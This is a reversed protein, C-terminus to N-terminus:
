ELEIRGWDEPRGQVGPRPSWALRSQNINEGLAADAKDGDYIILNFGLRKQRPYDLGIERFPISARLRYGGTMDTRAYRSRPATEEALGQNADADRAARVQGSTDAPFIALKFAKVTHEAGAEPDLCIEVSDTRWHGRVDNPAINTVIVDDTVDIELFLNKRDHALRFRGGSDAPGTVKGEALRTAPIVVSPIEAWGEDAGESVRQRPVRLKPVPHLTVAARPEIQGIRGRAIIEFDKEAEAPVEVRVSVDRVGAVLKGRWAAPQVTVGSPGEFTVEMEEGTPGEIELHIVNKEGAVVPVDVPLKTATDAIGQEAVWRQYSATAPRARFRMGQGAEVGPNRIRPAGVPAPLGELLDTEASAFPVVSKVLMFRQPRRLWPSNAFNGFAQSRHNALAQGAIDAATRGNSLPQDVQITAVTGRGGGSFYLKAAQWVTLGEKSIHEPFQNPDAAADFAEAALRAAVQHHGHQGPTPAPNMTVIVNPRLARVLRVLRELTVAHGWKELTAAASETYFFDKQDLFYCYRVGATGLADRLEAERLIGLSAGWHTGVMNGGGEGRTCYVNAVVKGRGLGYTALTALAGTEDDPHAFVGLIDAKLLADGQKPAPSETGLASPWFVGLGVLLLVLPFRM